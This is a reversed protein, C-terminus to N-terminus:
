FYLRREITPIKGDPPTTDWKLDVATGPCYLYRHLPVFSLDTPTLCLPPSFFSSSACVSSDDNPFGCCRHNEWDAAMHQLDVEDFSGIHAKEHRFHSQFTLM